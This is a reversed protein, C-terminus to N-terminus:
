VVLKAAVLPLKVSRREVLLVLVLEKMEDRTAVKALMVSRITPLEVVVLANTVLREAVLPLTVLKIVPVADDVLKTNVLPVEVPFKEARPREYRAEEVISLSRIVPSNRSEFLAVPVNPCSKAVFPVDVYQSVNVPVTLSPVAVM